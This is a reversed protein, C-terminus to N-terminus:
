RLQLYRKTNVPTYDIRMEMLAVITIYTLMVRTVKTQLWFYPRFHYGFIFCTVKYPSSISCVNVNEIIYMETVLM